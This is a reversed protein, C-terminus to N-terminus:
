LTENVFYQEPDFNPTNYHLDYMECARIVKDEGKQLFKESCDCLKIKHTNKDMAIFVM